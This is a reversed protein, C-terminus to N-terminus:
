WRHHTRGVCVVARDALEFADLVPVLPPLPRCGHECFIDNPEADVSVLQHSGLISILYLHPIRFRAANMEFIRKV